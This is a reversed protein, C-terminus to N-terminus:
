TTQADYLEQQLEDLDSMLMEVERDDGEQRAYRIERRLYEIDKKIEQVTRM